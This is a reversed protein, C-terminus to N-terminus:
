MKRIDYTSINMRKIINELKLERRIEDLTRGQIKYM